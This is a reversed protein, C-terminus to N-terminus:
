RIFSIVISYYSTAVPYDHSRVNDGGSSKSIVFPSLPTMVVSFDPLHWRLWAKDGTIPVASVMLSRIFPMVDSTFTDKGFVNLKLRIM